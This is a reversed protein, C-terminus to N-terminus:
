NTGTSTDSGNYCQKICGQEVHFVTTQEPLQITNHLSVLTVLAQMGSESLRELVAGQHAEDLESGLDDLLLLPPALNCHQMIEAMSVFLALMFAKQQGRSLTNIASRRGQRLLLDDRHPGRLTYGARYDKDGNEELQEALPRSEDWGYRLHISLGAPLGFEHYIAAFKRQLQDCFNTRCAQLHAAHDSLEQSWPALSANSPRVASRLLANRQSLARRYRRWHDIYGHEVHFAGIDLQRRRFSPGDEFFKLSEAGVFLSPFRQLLELRTLRNVSGIRIESENGVFRHSLEQSPPTRDAHSFRGTILFGAAEWTTVAQLRSSRFSRATTLINIAELLASKGAGNEGTFLNLGPNLDLKKAELNRVGRISASRLYM